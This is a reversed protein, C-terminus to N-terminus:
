RGSHCNEGREEGLEGKIREFGIKATEAAAIVQPLFIKSSNFLKGVEELGKVIGENNVILPEAGKSIASDIVEVIEQKLGRRVADRIEPFNGESFEGEKMGIIEGTV